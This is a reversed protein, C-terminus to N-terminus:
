FRAAYGFDPDNAPDYTHWDGNSSIRPGPFMRTPYNVPRADHGHGTTDRYPLGGIGDFAWHALGNRAPQSDRAEFRAAIEPAALARGYVAPAFLDGTYFASEQDDANRAAAILLPGDNTATFEATLRLESGPIGDVSLRVHTEDVTAVIYHWTEPSLAPGKLTQYGDATQLHLGVVGADDLLLQIDAHWLLASPQRLALPRCWLEITLPSRLQPPQAIFLYDGRYVCQPSAVVSGLAEVLKHDDRNYGYRVIDVQVPGNGAIRLDMTQGPHLSLCHSYAHLGSVPTPEHPPLFALDEPVTRTDPTTM